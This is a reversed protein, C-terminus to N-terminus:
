HGRAHHQDGRCREHSEPSCCTPFVSADPHSHATIRAKQAADLTAVGHLGSDAFMDVMNAIYKRHLSPVVVRRRAKWVEGDAPILGACVWNIGGTNCSRM